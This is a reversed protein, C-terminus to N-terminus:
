AGPETQCSGKSQGPLVGYHNARGMDISSKWGTLGDILASM